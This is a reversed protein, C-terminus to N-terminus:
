RLATVLDDIIQAVEDVSSAVPRVDNELYDVAEQQRGEDILERVNTVM